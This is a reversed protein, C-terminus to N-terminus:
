RPRRGFREIVWDRDRGFEALTAAFPRQERQSAIALRWGAFAAVVLWLGMLLAVSGWGLRDWLLAVVLANAALVAEQAELLSDAMALLAADKQERRATALQRSATRAARAVSTFDM